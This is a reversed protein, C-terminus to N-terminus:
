QRLQHKAKEAARRKIKTEDNSYDSEAHYIFEKIRVAPRPFFQTMHPENGFKDACAGAVDKVLQLSQKMRIEGNERGRDHRPSCICYVPHGDLMYAHLM